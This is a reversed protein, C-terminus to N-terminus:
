LLYLSCTVRTRGTMAGLSKNDTWKRGTPILYWECVCAMSNFACCSLIKLCMPRAGIKDVEETYGCCAHGKGYWRCEPYRLNLHMRGYDEKKNRYVISHFLQLVIISGM